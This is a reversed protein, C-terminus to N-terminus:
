QQVPIISEELESQGGTTDGTNNKVNLFENITDETLAEEEKSIRIAEGDKGTLESRKSYNDRGLTEAVFKSMDAKVRVLGTDVFIYDEGKDNIKTNKTGMELFQEINRNALMLKRDRKWGEILNSINDQNAWTWGTVTSYPIEIIEAIEKLNKGDIIYERISAFVEKTLKTPQGVSDAM